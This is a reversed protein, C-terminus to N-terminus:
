RLLQGLIVILARIAWDAFAFGAGFALGFLLDHGLKAFMIAGQAQRIQRIAEEVGTTKVDITVNAAAM